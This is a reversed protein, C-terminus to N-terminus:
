GTRAPRGGSISRRTMRVAHEGKEHGRGRRLAPVVWARTLWAVPERHERLARDVARARGGRDGSRGYANAYLLWNSIEYRHLLPGFRHGDFRELVALAAGAGACDRLAHTADVLIERLDEFAREPDRAIGVLTAEFDRESMGAARATEAMASVQTELFSSRPAHGLLRGILYMDFGSAIAEGLVLAEVSPPSVRGNSRLPAFARAALHHWTAHALVDAALHDDVLVDGGAGAGWFTLNLFLARDWRPNVSKPLVRFEYKERRLIDKLDAYLAVHAFSAEDDIVLDDVTRTEFAPAATKGM